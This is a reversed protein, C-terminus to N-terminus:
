KGPEAPASQQAEREARIQAARDRIKHIAPVIAVVAVLGLISLICGTEFETNGHTFKGVIRLGIIVSLVGLTLGVAYGALWWGIALGICGCLPPLVCGLDGL